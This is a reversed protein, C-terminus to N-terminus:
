IIKQHLSCYEIEGLDTLRSGVDPIRENSERAEHSSGVPVGLLNAVTTISISRTRSPEPEFRPQSV